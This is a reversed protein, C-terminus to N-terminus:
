FDVYGGARLRREEAPGYPVVEVFPPLSEPAIHHLRLYTSCVRVDIVRFADLQAAKDVIDKFEGYNDRSFYEVEPGHLVFAIPEGLVFSNQQDILMSARDFLDSIEEETHLEINAIYHQPNEVIAPTTTPTEGMVLQGLTVVLLLLRGLWLSLWRIGIAGM